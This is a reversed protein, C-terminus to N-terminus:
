RELRGQGVDLVLQGREALGEDALVGGLEVGGDVRELGRQAPGEFAEGGGGAFAADRGRQASAERARAALDAGLALGEGAGAGVDLLM